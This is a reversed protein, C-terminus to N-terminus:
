QTVRVHDSLHVHRCSFFFFFWTRGGSRDHGHSLIKKTQSFPISGNGSRSGWGDFGPSSLTPHIHGSKEGWHLHGCHLAWLAADRVQNEEIWGDVWVAAPSPKAEYVHPWVAQEELINLPGGSAWQLPFIAEV